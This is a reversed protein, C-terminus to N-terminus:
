GLHKKFWDKAAEAAKSFWPEKYYVDFHSCPLISIAKPELIREYSRKALHIPILSDYEALVM